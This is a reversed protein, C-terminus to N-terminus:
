RPGPRSERALKERIRRVELMLKHEGEDLKQRDSRLSPYSSSSSTVSEVDGNNNEDNAMNQRLERLREFSKQLDESDDSETIVSRAGTGGYVRNVFEQEESDAFAKKHEKVQDMLNEIKREMAANEDYRKAMQLLEREHQMEELRHRLELENMMRGDMALQEVHGLEKQMARKHPDGVDDPIFEHFKLRRSIEAEKDIGDAYHKQGFTSKLAERELDQQLMQKQLQLQMNRSEAENIANRTEQDRILKKSQLEDDLRKLELEKQRQQHHMFKRRAADLLTMEKVKMERNMAQLRQRQEVLKEEEDKIMLRRKEEADMLLQQQRYWAEEEHRHHITEQQLQLSLQRQKLYEMEEQRLREREQIQYDVIFKPYKNFIPYQGKTLPQFPELMRKPNIEVPSASEIRYAEKIVQNLDVANRNHFYYKFDDIETCNLLAGRSCISYSVVSTLLFSPHNSIVNDWMKLWEDKTLVESFATELLPWAYIQSTVKYKVFHQLLEKDHHALLNEVMSLMNIPPNPFYEFWHQCWNVLISAVVEFCVLQNNQCLKVFPFAFLPLYQTEGFIPSWHAMASLTRQLVRLLKRSKIPYEQHIKTYSSHTGKDVLAAYAAHNEPLRLLSRWIFMRYKVPYEGYGKLIGLLRKHNLGAPLSEEPEEVTFVQPIKSILPKKQEDLEDDKSSVIQVLPAPPKNIESTLAHVGLLNITGDEIVCVVYRGNPSISANMIRKDISGIDFLLKCTVIDIFRMIGDQSLVGLVQKGPCGFLEPLFGLQKVCKVKAPLQIIHQMQHTELNWVHIFKSKGGAALLRGDRSCAFDKFHVDSDPVPLQYKCNLTESDWCFISFDKFCTMISNSMPLFFVKVIGVNEKINLKRKRQFTDLDWLQATDASSTLAYRGSAHVSITHIASEHGKMWAILEKKEADFCKLTYDSLAVLFEHRRRLSFALATCAVGTKQVLEFRNRNLDFQYISGQHDCALFTDGEADFASHLFRINRSPHSLSSPVTNSITVIIGDYITPNPKRCWIKGTTRKCLDVTQM